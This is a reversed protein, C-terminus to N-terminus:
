RLSSPSGQRKYVDRLRSLIMYMPPLSVKGGGRGLSSSTYLLCAKPDRRLRDILEKQDM